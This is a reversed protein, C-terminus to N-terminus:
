ELYKQCIQAGNVTNGSKFNANIPKTINNKAYKLKPQPLIRRKISLNEGLSISWEKFIQLSSKVTYSNGDKGKYRKGENSFIINGIKGIEEIKKNM